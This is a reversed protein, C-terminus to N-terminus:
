SGDPRGYFVADVVGRAHRTVRRYDDLFQGPDVDAGYGCARAVGSLELGHRPMALILKRAIVEFTKERAGPDRNRFTLKLKGEEGHREFRILESHGWIEGSAQTFRQAM